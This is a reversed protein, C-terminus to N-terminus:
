STDARYRACCELPKSVTLFQTPDTDVILGARLGMQLVDTCLRTVVWVSCSSVPDAQAGRGCAPNRGAGLDPRRRAYRGHHRHGRRAERATRRPGPRAGAAPPNEQRALHRAPDPRAYAPNSAWTVSPSPLPLYPLPLSHLSLLPSSRVPSSSRSSL